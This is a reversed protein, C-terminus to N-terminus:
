KIIKYVKITENRGSGLDEGYVVTQLYRHINDIGWFSQYRYDLYLDFDVIYDLNQKQVYDWIKKDKLALYANFNVLGDLNVIKHKSFYGQIGANFVGIKSSVPLNDNAWLTVEYMQKQTLERDSLNKSWNIYFAASLILLLFIYLLKKYPWWTQSKALFWTLFLTLWLNLSIFYWTRYTWRWSANLLFLLIWAGFLYVEVPYERYAKKFVAKQGIAWALFIGFIIFFIEPAGFQVFIKQLAYDSSYVIAKLQQGLGSGNDQIVLQHNVLTFAAGSSTIITGFNLQNWILWPLVLVSAVLGVIITKSFFRPPRIILLYILGTIFYLVQDLRALMMAAGLVGWVGYIWWRDKKLFYVAWAIFLSLCFLALSTELGNLSEYLNFPNFLWIFLALFKLWRSATYKNLILYIVIATLTNLLASFVLTARIVQWADTSNQFFKFIPLILWLWLPHYGNTLEQGDFTSGLNAVMNKALVFYYFADDPLLNTLLWTESKFVLVLRWVLAIVLITIIPWYNKFFLKIKM